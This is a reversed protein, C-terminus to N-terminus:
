RKGTIRKLIAGLILAFILPPAILSIWLWPGEIIRHWGIRPAWVRSIRLLTAVTWLVSVLVWLVRLRARIWRGGLPQRLFGGAGRDVLPLSM